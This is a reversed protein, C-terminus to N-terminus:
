RPWVGPMAASGPPPTLLPSTPPIPGGRGPRVIVGRPNLPIFGGPAAQGSSSGSTLPEQM